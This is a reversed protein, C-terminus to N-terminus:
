EDSCQYLGGFWHRTSVMYLHFNVDYVIHAITAFSCMLLNCLARPDKWYLCSAWYGTWVKTCRVVNPTIEMLSIGKNVVRWRFPFHESSKSSHVWLLCTYFYQVPAVITPGVNVYLDCQHGSLKHSTEYYDACTSLSVYDTLTTQLVIM